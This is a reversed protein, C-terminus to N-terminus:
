QFLTNGDHNQEKQRTEVYLGSMMFTNHQALWYVNDAFGVLVYLVNYGSRLIRHQAQSTLITCEAYEGGDPTRTRTCRPVARPGRRFVVAAVIFTPCSARERSPLWGTSANTQHTTTHKSRRRSEFLSSTIDHLFRGSFRLHLHHFRQRLIDERPSQ